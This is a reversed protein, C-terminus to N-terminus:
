DILKIQKEAALVYVADDYAKDYEDEYNKDNLDTLADLINETMMEIQKKYKKEFLDIEMKTKTKTM